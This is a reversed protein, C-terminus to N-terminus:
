GKVMVPLRVTLSVVLDCWPACWLPASRVDDDCRLLTDRFRIRGSSTM